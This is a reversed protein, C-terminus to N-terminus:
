GKQTKQFAAEVAKIFASRVRDEELSACGSATTGAPSMVEEKILAPHNEILLPTFGEFLGETLKKADDRKLGQMVGGDELAEAVLALFAPGSGAIATAIDLEKESEVWLTKGIKEFIKIAEEKAEKDGTLTTMSKKYKAALNPMARIYFNAKISEKLSKIKTGALVSILINPTKKFYKSVEKLAYPKIALIIVKEQSNFEDYSKAEIGNEQLKKIKQKDRGVVEIEFSDKLADILAYAMKGTGIISIKM